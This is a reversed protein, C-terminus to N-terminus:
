FTDPNDDLLNEVRERELNHSSATLVVGERLLLNEEWPIEAVEQLQVASIPEQCGAASVLFVFVGGMWILLNDRRKM